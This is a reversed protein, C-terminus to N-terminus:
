QPKYFSCIDHARSNLERRVHEFSCSEFNRLLRRAEGYLAQMKADIVRYEGNMQRIVLQSDGQVHLRKM